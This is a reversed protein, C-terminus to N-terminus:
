TLPTPPTYLTSTVQNLAALPNYVTSIAQNLTTPPTYVTATTGDPETTMTSGYGDAAGSPALRTELAEVSLSPRRM